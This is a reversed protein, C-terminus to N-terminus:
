KTKYTKTFRSITSNKEEETLWRVKKFYRDIKNRDGTRVIKECHRNWVLDGYRAFRKSYTMLYFCAALGPRDHNLNKYITKKDTLKQKM